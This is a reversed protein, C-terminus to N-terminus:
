ADVGITWAFVRYHGSDWRQDVSSGGYTDTNDGGFVFASTAFDFTNDDRMLLYCGYYTHVSPDASAFYRFTKGADWVRNNPDRFLVQLLLLSTGLNHTLPYNQIAAVAFWGSDYDPVLGGTIKARGDVHLKQTPAPTGIGVNGGAFHIGEAVDSWQSTTLSTGNKRIDTADIAGSVRLNGALNTAGTVSLTSDIRLDGAIHLTAGPANTGIGVRGDAGIRMKELPTPSGTLFRIAGLEHLDLFNGQRNFVLKHHDDFSRIQGNDQFLIERDIELRLGGDQIALQNAAGCSLKPWQALDVDPRAFDLRDVTQPM